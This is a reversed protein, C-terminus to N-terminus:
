APMKELAKERRAARDLSWAYGKRGAIRLLFSLPLMVLAVVFFVLYLVLLFVGSYPALISLRPRDGSASPLVEMGLEGIDRLIMWFGTDWTSPLVEATKAHASGSEDWLVKADDNQRQAESESLPVVKGSADWTIPEKGMQRLIPIAAQPPYSTFISKVILRTFSPIPFANLPWEPM